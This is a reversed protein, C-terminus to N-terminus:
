VNEIPMKSITSWIIKEIEEPPLTADITIIKMQDKNPDSNAIDEYEKFIEAYLAATKELIEQKEYIETVGRGTIRKLSQSPSIVFYFVYEPLPFDENLKLPLEKGCEPTQYALSSFFYRDSVVLYNKKCLELIGNKGYVHESRDAAFLRAVTQPHLTIDGKLVRRLFVGTEGTTPEATFWVKKNELKKALLKQQTTTGAGDIGEFVIFNQLVM